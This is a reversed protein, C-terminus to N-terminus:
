GATGGAAPHLHGPATTPAAAGAAWAALPTAALTLAILRNNM